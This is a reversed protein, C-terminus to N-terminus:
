VKIHEVHFTERSVLVLARSRGWPVPVVISGGPADGPAMLLAFNDGLKSGLVVEPAVARAVALDFRRGCDEFREVMVEVNGLERTAERLFVGKRSDSEILTIKLDGRLIALPVGPFGAGSGLDAVTIVGSPVARALFLSECYHFHVAKHLDVIRTLNLRKNWRLLLEYHKELLSLQLPTLEGYPAFEAQLLEQFGM